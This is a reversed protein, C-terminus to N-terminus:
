TAQQGCEEDACNGGSHYLYGFTLQEAPNTSGPKFTLPDGAATLTWCFRTIHQPTGSFVDNYKAWGMIYFIKKRTQIDLIEQPSIAPTGQPVIGGMLILRPPILGSGLDNTAYNFDFNGPLETERLEGWAHITLNKTPTAGSNQWQPRFRWGYLNTQPISEWFSFISVPFVFARLQTNAVNQMTEVAKKSNEANIKAAEASSQAASALKVTDKAGEKMLGLQKWFMIVQGVAVLALIITAIALVIAWVVLSRENAAKEDREPRDQEAREYTKEAEISKIVFPNNDTGTSNTAANQNPKAPYSKQQQDDISPTPFPPQSYAGTWVILLAVALITKVTLLGRIAM